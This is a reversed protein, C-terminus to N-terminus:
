CAVVVAEGNEDLELRQTALELWSKGSFVSFGEEHAPLQASSARDATGFDAQVPSSRSCSGFLNPTPVLPGPPAYGAGTGIPGQKFVPLKNKSPMPMTPEMAAMYGGLFDQEQMVSRQAHWHPYPSEGYHWHASSLSGDEESGTEGAITDEEWLDFAAGAGGTYSPMRPNYVKWPDLDVPRGFGPPPVDRKPYASSNDHWVGPVEKLHEYRLDHKGHAFRCLAADPCTGAKWALCISTKSLDPANELEEESHAFKCNVGRSCKAAQFFSCIKTKQPKFQGQRSHVNASSM